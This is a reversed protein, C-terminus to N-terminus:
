MFIRQVLRNSTATSMGVRNYRFIQEFAYTHTASNKFSYFTIKPGNSLSCLVVPHELKFFPGIISVKKGFRGAIAPPFNWNHETKKGKQMSSIHNKFSVCMKEEEETQRDTQMPTAHGITSYNFYNKSPIEDSQVRRLKPNATERKQTSFKKGRFYFDCSKIIMM